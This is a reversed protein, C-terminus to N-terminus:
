LFLQLIPWDSFKFDWFYLSLWDNDTLSKTLLYATAAPTTILMAIVLITGVTQLSSVAVLTLLFM